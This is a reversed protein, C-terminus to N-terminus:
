SRLKIFRKGFVRDAGALVGITVLVLCLTEWFEPATKNEIAQAIASSRDILTQTGSTYIDSFPAVIKTLPSSKSEPAIEVNSVTSISFGIVLLVIVMAVVAGFKGLLRLAFSDRAPSGLNVIISTPLGAPAKVLFESRVINRTSRELAVRRRCNECSAVHAAIEAARKKNLRQDVFEFFEASTPHNM